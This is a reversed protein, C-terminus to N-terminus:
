SKTGKMAVLPLGKQQDYDVVPSTNYMTNASGTGFFSKAKQKLAELEPDTSVNEYFKAVRQEKPLNQYEKNNNFLYAATFLKRAAPTGLSAELSNYASTAGGGNIPVSKYPDLGNAIVHNLLDYGGLEKPSKSIFSAGTPPIPKEADRISKSM